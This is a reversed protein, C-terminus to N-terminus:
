KVECFRCFFTTKFDRNGDYYGVHFWKRIFGFVKTDTGQVTIKIIKTKINPEDCGKTYSEEEEILGLELTDM